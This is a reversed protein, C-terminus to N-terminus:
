ARMIIDNAVVNFTNARNGNQTAMVECSPFRVDVFRGSAPVNEVFGTSQPPKLARSPGKLNIM